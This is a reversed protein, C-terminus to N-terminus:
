QGQFGVVCFLAVVAVMGFVLANRKSFNGAVEFGGSSEKKVRKSLLSDTRSESSSYGTKKEEDSGTEM